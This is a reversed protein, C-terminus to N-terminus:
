LPGGTFPPLEEFIEIPVRREVYEIVPKYLADLSSLLDSQEYATPANCEMEGKCPKRHWWVGQEQRCRYLTVNRCSALLMRVRGRVLLFFPLMIEEEERILQDRLDTTNWLLRM